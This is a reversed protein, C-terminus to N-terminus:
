SYVASDEWGLIMLNPYRSEETRGDESLARTMLAPTRAEPLKAAFDSYAAAVADRQRRLRTDHEPPATTLHADFVGLAREWSAQTVDVM